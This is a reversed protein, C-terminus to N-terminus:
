FGLLQCAPMLVANLCHTPQSLCPRIQAIPTPIRVECLGVEWADVEAHDLVLLVRQVVGLADLTLVADLVAAGQEKLPKKGPLFRCGGALAGHREYISSSMVSTFLSSTHRGQTARDLGQVM